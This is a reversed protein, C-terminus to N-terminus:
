LSRQWIVLVSTKLLIAFVISVLHSNSISKDVKSSQSGMSYFPAMGIFHREDIAENWFLIRSHLM